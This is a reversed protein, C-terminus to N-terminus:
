ILSGREQTLSVPSLSNFAKTFLKERGSVKMPNAYSRFSVKQGGCTLGFSKGVKTVYSLQEM